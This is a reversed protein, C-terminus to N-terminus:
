SSSPVTSPVATAWTEGASSREARGNLKEVKEYPTLKENITAGGTAHTGVEHARDFM